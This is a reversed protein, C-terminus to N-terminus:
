SRLIRVRTRGNKLSTVGGALDSDSPAVVEELLERLLAVVPCPLGADDEAEGERERHAVLDERAVRHIVDGPKAAWDAGRVYEGSVLEFGDTYTDARPLMSRDLRTRSRISLEPLDHLDHEAGGCADTFDECDPETIEVQVRRYRQHQDTSRDHAPLTFGGVALIVGLSGAGNAADRKGPERETGDARPDLLNSKGGRVRQQEGSADSRRVRRVVNASLKAVHHLLCSHRVDSRVPETSGCRGRDVLDPSQLESGFEEPVAIGRDRSLM